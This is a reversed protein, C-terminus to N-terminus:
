AFEPDCGHGRCEPCPGADKETEPDDPQADACFLRGEVCRVPRGPNLWSGSWRTM